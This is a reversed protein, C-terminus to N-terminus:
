TPTRKDYFDFRYTCESVKKCALLAVITILNGLIGVIMFLVCCLAALHLLTSAYGAFLPSDRGASENSLPWSRRLELAPWSCNGFHCAPTVVAATTTELSNAMDPLGVFVLYRYDPMEHTGRVPVGGVRMSRNVLGSAEIM